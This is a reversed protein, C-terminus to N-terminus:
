VEGAGGGELAEMEENYCCSSDRTLTGRVAIFRVQSNVTHLLSINSFGANLDQYSRLRDELKETRASVSRAM